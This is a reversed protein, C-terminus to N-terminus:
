QRAERITDYLAALVIVACMALTGNFANNFYMVNDTANLMAMNYLVFLAIVYCIAKVIVEMDISLRKM